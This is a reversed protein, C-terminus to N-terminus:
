AKPKPKPKPREPRIVAREAGNAPARAKRSRKALAARAAGFRPVGGHDNVAVRGALTVGRDTRHGSLLDSLLFISTAPIWFSFGRAANLSGSRRAFFRFSFQVM